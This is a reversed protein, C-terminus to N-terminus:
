ILTSSTVYCQGGALNGGNGFILGDGWGCWVGRVWVVGESLGGGCGSM